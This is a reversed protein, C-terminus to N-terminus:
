HKHFQCMYEAETTALSVSCAGGALKFVYGMYSKGDHIDNGCDADAFAVVNLDLGDKEFTLCKDITGKLYRLVNMAKYERDMAEKWEKSKPSGLAEKVTMPEDVTSLTQESVHYTVYDPFQKEIHVRNSRRL